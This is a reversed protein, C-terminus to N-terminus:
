NSARKFTITSGKEIELREIGEASIGITMGEKGVACNPYKSEIETVRFTQGDEAIGLMKPSVIGSTVKGIIYVGEFGLFTSVRQVEVIPEAGEEVKIHDEPRTIQIQSLVPKNRGEGFTLSVLSM